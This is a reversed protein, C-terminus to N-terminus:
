HFKYNKEGLEVSGEQPRPLAGQLRGSVRDSGEKKLLEYLARGKPSLDEM